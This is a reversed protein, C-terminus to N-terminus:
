GSKSKFREEAQDIQQLLDSFAGAEPAAFAHHLV